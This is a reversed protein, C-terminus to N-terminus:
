PLPDPTDPTSEPLEPADLHEPPPRSTLAELFRRVARGDDPALELGLQHRAMLAVAEDLSAVSGDHFYPATGAVNRLGPVKFRMRDGSLRTQEYVGPDSQDLYAVVLGLVELSHGGVGPGNHCSACGLEVFREFGHREEPTLAAAEGELFADFPGRTVLVREFAGIALALTEYSLAPDRGPFAAEFLPVYGPISRLTAVVREPDPMAMEVPNLIPQKSQEEVDPARADWFQAVHVAANFVTPSNRTGQQGRHGQSVRRGDAGWSTLDHCSACSVDHNVSLRPDHFLRKGLAVKEPTVPNAVSAAERTLHRFSDYYDRPPLERDAAPAGLPLSVAFLM